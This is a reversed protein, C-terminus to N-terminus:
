ASRQASSEDFLRSVGEHDFLTPYGGPAIYVAVGDRLVVAEPHDVQFSHGSVLEVTFTRFPARRQFARLTRDFNDTTM